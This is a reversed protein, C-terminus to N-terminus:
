RPLGGGVLVADLAAVGTPLAPTPPPPPPLLKVLEAISLSM